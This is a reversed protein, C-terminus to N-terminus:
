FSAAAQNKVEPPRTFYILAATVDETRGCFKLVELWGGIEEQTDDFVQPQVQRFFIEQGKFFNQIIHKIIWHESKGETVLAIRTM